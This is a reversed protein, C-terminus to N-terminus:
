LPLLGFFRRRKPRAAAEAEARERAEQEARLKKIREWLRRDRDDAGAQWEDWEEQSMWPPPQGPRRRMTPGSSYSASSGSPTVPSAAEGEARRRARLEDEGRKAREYLRRSRENEGALWEDWEEQTVWSPKRRKYSM